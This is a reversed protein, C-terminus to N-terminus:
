DAKTNTKNTIHCVLSTSISYVRCNLSQYCIAASERANRVSPYKQTQSEYDLQSAIIGSVYEKLVVPDQYDSADIPAHVYTRVVGPYIHKGHKPMVKYANKITVPVITAGIDIAIHFAGKKLPGLKGDESRTGEPYVIFSMGESLRQKVRETSRRAKERNQRDVYVMGMMGAGVGLIPVRRIEKKALFGLNGPLYNYLAPVDMFSQHNAVILYTKKPDMHEVGEIEFRVGVARFSLMIVFRIVPPAFWSKGTIFMLLVLVSGCLLLGVGLIGLMLYYRIRAM